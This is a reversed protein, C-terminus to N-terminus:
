SLLLEIEKKDLIAKVEALEEAIEPEMEQDDEEIALDLIDKIFLFYFKKQAALIVLIIGNDREM